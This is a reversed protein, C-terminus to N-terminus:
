YDLFVIDEPIAVVDRHKPGLVKRIESSHKGVLFPAAGILARRDSNGLLLEAKSKDVLARDCAIQPTTMSLRLRLMQGEPALNKAASLIVITM